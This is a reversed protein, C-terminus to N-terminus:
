CQGYIKKQLSELKKQAEKLYRSQFGETFASYVKQLLDFAETTRGQKDLLDSYGLLTRLETAKLEKRKAINLAEQFNTEAEQNTAVELSLLEGLMRYIDAIYVVSHQAIAISCGKELLLKAEAREGAVLFGEALHRFLIPAGMDEEMNEFCFQGERMKQIGEETKNLFTLTLGLWILSLGKWRQFPYQQTLQLSEEFLPRAEEWYGAYLLTTAYCNLAIVLCYPNKLTRTFSLCQEAELLAQEPYGLYWLVNSLFGQGFVKPNEPFHNKETESLTEYFELTTRLYPVCEKMDGNYSLSMGMMFHASTQYLPRQLEQAIELLKNALLTSQSYNGKILYHAWLSQLSEFVREKRDIKWSLRELRAFAKQVETSSYDLVKSLTQGFKLLIEFEIEGSPDLRPVELLIGLAREFHFRAQSYEFKELFQNGREQEEKLIKDLM